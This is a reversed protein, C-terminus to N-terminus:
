RRAPRRQRRGRAECRWRVPPKDPEGPRREGAALDRHEADAPTAEASAPKEATSLERPAPRAVMEETSGRAVTERSVSSDYESVFRSKEPVVETDPKVIEVVQANPKPDSIRREAEEVKAVELEEQKKAVEEASLAVSEMLPRAEIEAVEEPSLLAVTESSDVAPADCVLLDIRLDAM